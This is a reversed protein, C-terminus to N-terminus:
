VTLATLDVAAIEAVEAYTSGPLTAIVALKIPNAGTPVVAEAYFRADTVDTGLTIPAAVFTGNQDALALTLAANGAAEFGSTWVRATFAIRHTGLGADFKQLELFPSGGAMKTVYGGVGTRTARTFTTGSGYSAIGDGIGDANTDVPSFGAGAFIDIVDVPTRPLAATYTPLALQTAFSQGLVRYGARNPHVKGGTPNTTDDYAAAYDGTARNVLPTYADLIELRREAAFRTLWASIRRAGNRANTTNSVPLVTSLIPQVGAALMQNVIATVNAATTALPVSAAADNIGTMVICRNPRVGAPLALFNPLVTALLQASTIGVQGMVGACVLRGGSAACLHALYNDGIQTSLASATGNSNAVTTSEGIAGIRAAIPQAFADRGAAVSAARLAVGAPSAPDAIEEALENGSLYQPFPDPPTAAPGDDLREWGWATLVAINAGSVRMTTGTRPNRFIAVAM